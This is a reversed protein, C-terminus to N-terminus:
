CQDSTLLALRTGRAAVSYGSARKFLSFGWACHVTAAKASHRPSATSLSLRPSKYIRGFSRSATSEPESTNTTALSTSPLEAAHSVSPLSTPASSSRPRSLEFVTPTSATAGPLFFPRHSGNDNNDKELISPSLGKYRKLGQTTCTWSM